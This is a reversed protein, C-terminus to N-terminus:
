SGSAQWLGVVNGAPDRVKAVWLNGEPRPAEVVEGGSPVVQAIAQDVNAVYIYPLLGPVHSIARNPIWRGILLGAPDVFRPDGQTNTSIHWGFVNHYFAASKHADITPIELYSLGGPRILTADVDAVRTPSPPPDSDAM